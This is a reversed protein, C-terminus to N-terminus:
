APMMPSAQLLRRGARQLAADARVAARVTVILRFAGSGSNLYLSATGRRTSEGAPLGGLSAPVVGSGPM